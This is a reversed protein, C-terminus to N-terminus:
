LWLIPTSLDQASLIPETHSSLFSIQKNEVTNAIRNNQYLTTENQKVTSFQAQKIKARQDHEVRTYM